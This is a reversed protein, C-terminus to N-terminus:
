REMVERVTCEKCDCLGPLGLQYHARHRMEERDEEPISEVYARLRDLDTINQQFIM